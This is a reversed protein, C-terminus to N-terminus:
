WRAYRKDKIRARLRDMLATHDIEDFCAKIDCELVWRYGSTGYHHIEAIADHARRNPRFGYSCPQFDAEFVPELVAKLSAQVVRDAVTLVTVEYQGDKGHRRPIMREDHHQAGPQIM